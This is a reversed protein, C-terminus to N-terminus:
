FSYKLISLIELYIKYIKKFVQYRTWSDVLRLPRTGHEVQNKKSTWLNHLPSIDAKFNM